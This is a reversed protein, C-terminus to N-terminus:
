LISKLILILVLLWLISLVIIDQPDMDVGFTVSYEQPDIDIGFTVSYEPGLELTKWTM